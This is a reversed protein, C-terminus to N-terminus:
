GIEFRDMSEHGGKFGIVQREPHRSPLSRIQFIAESVRETIAQSMTQKAYDRQYSSGEATTAYLAPLRNLAYACIDGIDIGSERLEISQTIQRSAEVLVLDEIVNVFQKCPVSQVSGVEVALMLQELAQNERHPIPDLESCLLAIEAQMAPTLIGNDIAEDVIHRISRENQPM